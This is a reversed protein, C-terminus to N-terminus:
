PHWFWNNNRYRGPTYGQYGNNWSNCCQNSNNIRALIREQRFNIRQQRREMKAEYWDYAKYTDQVTTNMTAMLGEQSAQYKALSVKFNPNQDPVTIADQANVLVVTFVSLCSLLIKKMVTMKLDFTPLIKHKHLSFLAM